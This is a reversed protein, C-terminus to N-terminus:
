WIPDGLVGFRVLKVITYTGGETEVRLMGNPLLEFSLVPSTVIVDFGRGVMVRVKNDINIIRIPGALRQGLQVQGGERKSAVKTMMYTDYPLNRVEMPVRKRITKDVYIRPYRDLKM